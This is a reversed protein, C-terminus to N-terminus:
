KPECRINSGHYDDAYDVAAGSSDFILQYYSGARGGVASSWWYGTVGVESPLGTRGIRYGGAPLFTSMNDNPANKMVGPTGNVTVWTSRQPGNSTAPAWTTMTARSAMRFGSNHQLLTYTNNLARAEAEDLGLVRCPDGYGDRGPADQNYDDTSLDFKNDWLAPNTGPVEVVPKGNIVGYAYYLWLNNPYKLSPNFFRTGAQVTEWWTTMSSIVSPPTTFLVISGGKVYLMNERTVTGTGSEPDYWQGAALRGNDDLYLIYPPVPIFSFAAKLSVARRPMNFTAKNPDSPDVTVTVGGELVKWSALKYGANPTVTLTVTRDAPSISLDGVVAGVGKGDNSLTIPYERLRFNAKLAVDGEPMVFSGSGIGTEEYTSGTLNQPSGSEVTWKEFMYDNVEDVKPVASLDVTVGAKAKMNPATTSVTGHTDDTLTIIYSRRDFKARIVVDSTLMRFSTEIATRDDLTVNGSVVEWGMFEYKPDALARITVLESVQVEEVPDVETRCNALVEQQTATGVALLEFTTSYKIVQFEARVSVEGAPMTFTGPSTAPLDTINSNVDVWRVFEYGAVPRAVLTVKTGAKASPIINADKDTAIASGNEDGAAAIHYSKLDFVARLNVDSGPMSFGTAAAKPNELTINNGVVQWEIFDHGDKASAVISVPLKEQARDPSAIVSGMETAPNGEPDILSINVGYTKVRFAPRISVNNPPMTFAWTGTGVVPSIILPGGSEVVWQDLEYGAVPQPTLTITQGARAANDPADTIFKGYTDTLTTIKYTVWNYVARIRVDAGGMAFNTIASDNSTLTVGGELVEWRVFQFGPQPNASIGIPTNVVGEDPTATPAGMYPNVSPNGVPDGNTDVVEFIVDSQYVQFEAKVEVDSEPMVFTAPSIKTDLNKPAGKVVTWKVFEYGAQPTATLTVTEGAKVKSVPTDDITAAASGHGDNDLVLNYPILDFEARIKVDNAPMLFSMEAAKADVLTVGGSLVTWGLFLHKPDPTAKIKMPLGAQSQTPTAEAKGNGGVEFEVKYQIPRFEARIEVNRAPMSFTGSGPTEGPLIVLPQEGAVVWRALEYGTDPISTLTVKDDLKASVMDASATGPGTSSVLISYSKRDFIAKIKVDAGGMMFNTKAAGNDSLTVDGSLVTWELFEYGAKPTATIGILTNVNADAPNAVATGMVNDVPNGLPDVVEFTINYRVLQFEARIEVDGAPMTFSGPSTTATLNKPEGKVVTWKVFEYGAQPTATLTVETDAKIKSAPQDDVTAVATGHGDNDMVLNYPTWDFDARIKVNSRPMIFSMEAAKADALTVGGSLVTWGLFNHKPDPTAKIRVPLDAPSLAPTAVAQGDGEVEIEVKYQIVKFEARIEVDRAPMNFTGTGPAPGPIIVRPQEGTVVGRSCEYDEDPEATLTVPMGEGQTEVSSTATGHGDGTVTIDYTILAFDARIAVENKPMVFGTQLATKDPIIAEGSEVTWGVFEYGADPIATITVMDGGEAAPVESGPDAGPIYITTSGNGGSTMTINFRTDPPAPPPASWPQSVEFPMQINGGARISWVDTRAATEIESINANRAV